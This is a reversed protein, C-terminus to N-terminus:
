GRAASRESPGTQGPVATWNAASCTDLKRHFPQGTQTSYAGLPGRQLYTETVREATTRDTLADYLCRMLIVVTTLRQQGDVIDFRSEGDVKSVVLTGTFHRAQGPTLLLHDIDALLDKVQDPEWAFGRQYDPIQFFHGSFIQPLSLLQSGLKPAM